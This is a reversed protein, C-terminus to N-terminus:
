PKVETVVRGRATKVSLYTAVFFLLSIIQNVWFFAPGRPETASLHMYSYAAQYEFVIFGALPILTNMMLVWKQAPNLLGGFVVLLAMIAIPVYIPVPLLDSFFQFTVLMLVGTILFIARVVNGYYHRSILEYKNEVHPTDM